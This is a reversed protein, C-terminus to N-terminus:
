RAPKGTIAITVNSASSSVLGRNDAVQLSATYTGAASYTHQATASTQWATSTGDGFTFQYYTVNAGSAALSSSGSLTVALPAKGQTASASLHAVPAATSSCTANGVLTYPVAAGASEQTLGVGASTTGTLDDPASTRTEVDLHTLQNGTALGFASKDLVLTITGDPDYTSAANLSGLVQFQGFGGANVTRYGYNFVPSPGDSSVMAVYYYGTNPAPRGAVDFFFMWRFGPQVTSLNNVKITFVLEGPMNAPEAISGYQVVDTGNGIDQGQTGSFQGPTAQILVDGGAACGPPTGLVTITKSLPASLAGGSNTVQLSVTHTGTTTYTHSPLRPIAQVAVSGDGYDLGFNTLARGAPDSSGSADFTVALPAVGVANTMALAAKPAPVLNPPVCGAPATYGASNLAADVFAIDFSGYGTTYDWGPGAAYEGNGGLLVDHFGTASSGPQQTTDLGYIIPAEFALNNCRASELRAWAGVNLPSSWSTGLVGADAGNVVVAAYTGVGAGAAGEPGAAMSIDPVARLGAASGTLVAQDNFQWTPAPELNSTGGGGADWALETVYNYTSNVFLSTGGVALVEPSSAPYEVSSPVGQDPTALNVLVGCAAGADGSSASWTQGQAVAEAFVEDFVNTGVSGLEDKLTSDETDECGGYSMNGVKAINETAFADNALLLDSDNLSATNYFILKKVNYALGTISESDLDWEGDGSNDQPNPVPVVQHVEVPILPLQNELEFQRLDSIVQQLDSGASVVAVVTNGGTSTIGADYATRLDGPTLGAISLDAGGASPNMTFTSSRGMIQLNQSASLKRGIETANSLGAVQLVINGLSSPVMVPGAPAYAPKGSLTFDVISTNFAQQAQAVTGQASVLLNDESVQINSFGISTLYDVVPQVQSATPSYESVFQAHTLPTSKGGRLAQLFAQLSSVNQLRLGVVISLTQNAPAPTTAVTSSVSLTKAPVPVWSQALAGPILSTVSCLFALVANKPM